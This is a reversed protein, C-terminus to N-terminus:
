ERNVIMTRFFVANVNQWVVGKTKKPLVFMFSLMKPYFIEKFTKKTFVTVIGSLKLHNSGCALFYVLHM